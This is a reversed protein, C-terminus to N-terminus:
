QTELMIENRRFMPLTWPPNYRALQPSGTTKIHRAALWAVLEDTRQQIGAETNFGSYSLVAWTKAPVQHLQVASNNPKPLTALTYASPMVFHVRWRTAGQLALPTPGAEGVPPLLPEMAVPATMAM